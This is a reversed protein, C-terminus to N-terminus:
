PWWHSVSYNLYNANLAKGAIQSRPWLSKRKTTRHEDIANVYGFDTSNANGNDVTAPSTRPQEQWRKYQGHGHSGIQLIWYAWDADAQYEFRQFNLRRGEFQEGVNGWDSNDNENHQDENGTSIGYFIFMNHIVYLYINAWFHMRKHYQEFFGSWDVISLVFCLENKQIM